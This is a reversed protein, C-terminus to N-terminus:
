HVERQLQEFSTMWSIRNLFTSLSGSQRRLARVAPGVPDEGAAGGPLDEYAGYFAFYAQNLKRIKYGHEYFIRRRAEMYSEAEEVKGKSLLADVQVRTVHMEARFDFSAPRSPSPKYSVWEPPDPKPVLEPYFRRVVLDGLEVGSISAATENMSRLQPTTEYNMGLPRLTLFNHTWEHPIVTSLWPLDDSSMVMTPYIGIGGVPVVLASMDLGRSVQGELSSMQPVTLDPLLSIDIDSRIADRPSIILALPLPTVHFWVPPLIEGGVSINEDALVQSVQSQLITEALPAVQRLQAQIDTLNARLAASQIEPQTESPDAYISAVDSQAQSQRKTLSLYAAVLDHRSSPPLYRDAGLVSQSIKMWFADLTWTIYDFEITRTYQRARETRDAPPLSSGSILPILILITLCLRLFRM